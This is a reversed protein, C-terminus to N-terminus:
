VGDALWCSSSWSYHLGLRVVELDFADLIKAAMQGQDKRSQAWSFIFTIEIVERM